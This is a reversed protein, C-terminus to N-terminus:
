YCGDQSKMCPGILSYGMSSDDGKEIGTNASSPGDLAPLAPTNMTAAKGSKDSNVSEGALSSPQSLLSSGFENTLNSESTARVPTLPLSLFFIGAFLVIWRKPM